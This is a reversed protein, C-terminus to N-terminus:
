FIPVLTLITNEAMSSKSTTIKCFFFIINKSYCACGIFTSASSPMKMGFQCVTLNM